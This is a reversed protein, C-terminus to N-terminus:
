QRQLLLRTGMHFFCYAFFFYNASKNWRNMKNSIARVVLENNDDKFTYRSEWQSWMKQCYEPDEVDSFNDNMYM